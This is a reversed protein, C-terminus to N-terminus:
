AENIELRLMTVKEKAVSYIYPESPAPRSGVSPPNFWYFDPSVQGSSRQLERGIPVQLPRLRPTAM